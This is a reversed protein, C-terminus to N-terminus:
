AGAMRRPKRLRPKMVDHYDRSRAYVSINGRDRHALLSLPDEKPAYNAGVLVVSRAEPWIAQPDRRRDANREMWGMTGHWGAALFADLKAGAEGIEPRAFGVADFGLARAEARIAARVPDDAMVTQEPLTDAPAPM